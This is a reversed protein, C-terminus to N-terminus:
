KMKALDGLKKQWVTNNGQHFNGFYLGAQEKIKGKKQTGDFLMLYSTTKDKQKLEIEVCLPIDRDKDIAPDGTQESCDTITDGWTATTGRPLASAIWQEFPLVPLSADYDRAPLSKAFAVYDDDALCPTSVLPLIVIFLLALQKM